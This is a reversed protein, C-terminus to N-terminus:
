QVTGGAATFQSFLDDWNGTMQKKGTSKHVPSRKKILGLYGAVSMYVPPGNHLWHDQMKQYM